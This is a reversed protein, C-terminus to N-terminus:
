KDGCSKEDQMVLVIGMIFSNRMRGMKQCCDNKKRYWNKFIRNNSEM